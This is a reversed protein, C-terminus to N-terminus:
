SWAEPCERRCRGIPQCRSYTCGVKRCVASRQARFTEALHESRTRVDAPLPAPPVKTHVLDQECGQFGRPILARGTLVGNSAFGSTVLKQVDHRIGIGINHFENDTFFKVEQAEELLAHCNNCRGRTNFIEWGPRASCDLSLTGMSSIISLLTSPFCRASTPRSRAYCIRATQHTAPGRSAKKRHRVSVIEAPPTWHRSGM